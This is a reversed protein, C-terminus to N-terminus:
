QEKSAPQKDFNELRDVHWNITSELDELKRLLQTRESKLSAIEEDTLIASELREQIYDLNLQNQYGEDDLIVIRERLIAKKREKSLFAGIPQRM